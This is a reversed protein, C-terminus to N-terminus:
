VMALSEWGAGVRERQAPLGGSARSVLRCRMASVDARARLRSRRCAELSIALLPLGGDHTSTRCNPGADAARFRQALARSGTAPRPASLGANTQECRLTPRVSRAPVRHHAPAPPESRTRATTSRSSSTRRLHRSLPRMPTSGPRVLMGIRGRGTRRRVPASAPQGNARRPPPPVVGVGFAIAATAALVTSRRIANHM